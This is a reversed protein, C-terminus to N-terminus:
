TVGKIMDGERLSLVHDIHQSYPGLGPSSQSLIHATIPRHPEHLNDQKLERQDTDPTYQLLPCARCKLHLSLRYLRIASRLLTHACIQSLLTITYNYLLDFYITYELLELYLRAQCLAHM